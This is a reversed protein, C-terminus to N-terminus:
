GRSGVSGALRHAVQEVLRVADHVCGYDVHEPLDSDLHYHPILRQQDISVLTATPFGLRQPVCGDTSSRSRLGRLVDVQVQDACGVLYDKFRADYDYMRVPGEGELLVLRGSGITDLNVVWTRERPLHRLHEAAFARIGQQLAEEAGASVLLVRLGVPPRGRLAEALAVLAAVGSLNDNAGPVAPRVGIDIMAAASVAALVIGARRLLRGRRGLLSGACVLAPGAIVPWWLPPNSTLRELWQPHRAALRRELGQDFVLGSPSADHHALVILTAPAAPDGTEAIVNTTTRRRALMRRTLLPGGTVDDVVGAAAVLGGAAGALRVIRPGVRSGRGPQRGPQRGALLGAAVAIGSLLGVPWQYSRFAPVPEVWADCGAAALRDRIQGAALREGRSTPLRPIRALATVIERLQDQASSPTM